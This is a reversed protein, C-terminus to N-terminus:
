PNCTQLGSTSSCKRVVNKKGESTFEDIYILECKNFNFSGGSVEKTFNGPTTEFLYVSQYLSPTGWTRIRAYVKGAGKKDKDLVTFICKEVLNDVKLVADTGVRISEFYLDGKQAVIKYGQSVDFHIEINGEKYDPLQAYYLRWYVNAVVLNGAVSIRNVVFKLLIDSLDVFNQAIQKKLRQWGKPEVNYNKSIFSMYLDLNKSMYAKALKNLRYQIFDSLSGPFYFVSFKTKLYDSINGQADIAKILIVYTRKPFPKFSFYWFERGKATYWTVGNDLSIEVKKISGDEEEAEGQIVIERYTNLDDSTLILTYKPNPVKGSVTINRILPVAQAGCFSYFFISCFIIFSIIKDM